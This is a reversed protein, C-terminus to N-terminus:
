WANEGPIPRGAARSPRKGAAQFRSLIVHTM